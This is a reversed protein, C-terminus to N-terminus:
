LNLITKEILTETDSKGRRVQHYSEILSMSLDRLESASFNKSFSKARRYPFEKMEAESSKVTRSALMMSKVIWVLKWFIKEAPFGTSLAKQYLIWAEKKKRAGIADTLAFINFGGDSKDLLPEEYEEEAAQFGIDVTEGFLDKHYYEENMFRLDEDGGNGGM